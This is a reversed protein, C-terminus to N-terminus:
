ELGASEGAALRRRADDAWPSEPALELFRRWHTVAEGHHGAGDLTSALHYHADAYPEHCEIAGRFAAEALRREGLEALLCGLNLRAELYSEDMELAVYYRERAATPDGCEYLLEALAFHDEAEAPGITLVLRWAEIAAAAEGQDRLALAISRAEDASDVQDREPLTLVDAADAHADDSDDPADFDFRKQGGPETLAEGDRLFLGGQDVVLPLEVLPRDLGPYARRLGDVLRDVAALSRGGEALAALTRAVSVEQFGYYALRKEEASSRLHGRRTWRRITSGSVGVLEALMAATYPRAVETVVNEPTVQM